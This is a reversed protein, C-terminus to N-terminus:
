IDCLHDRCKEWLKQAFNLLLERQEDNLNKPIEHGYKITPRFVRDYIEDLQMKYTPGNLHDIMTESLESEITIKFM